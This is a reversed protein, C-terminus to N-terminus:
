KPTPCYGTNEFGRARERRNLDTQPKPFLGLAVLAPRFEYRLTVVAAPNDELEMQVHTVPHSVAQGIGTAAYEEAKQASKGDLGKSQNAQPEPATPAAQARPGDKRDRDGREHYTIRERGRERFFAASVIGLNQARGLWNGYSQEESTFFFRRAQQDNTQWGNITITQYPDLVWKRASRADTHRADISNLGDVALAVAVRYPYPNTLRIEYERGKFAEIYTTGRAFYEPAPVGNVLVEIGFNNQQAAFLPTALLILIMLKRM